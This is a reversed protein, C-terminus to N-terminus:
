LNLGLKKAPKKGKLISLEVRLILLHRDGCGGFPHLAMPEPLQNINAVQAIGAEKNALFFSFFDQLFFFCFFDDM